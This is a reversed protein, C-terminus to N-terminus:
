KAKLNKRATKISSVFISILEDNEKLLAKFEFSDLIKTRKLIQLNVFTERLEKLGIKLKHIFDKRSEASQAEAHHFASSTGSKILQKAFHVGVVTKPLRNVIQIIMVSFLILREQLDYKKRNM